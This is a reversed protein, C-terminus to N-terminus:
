DNWFVGNHVMPTFSTLGRSLRVDASRHIMEMIAGIHDDNDYTPLRFEREHSDDSRRGGTWSGRLNSLDPAPTPTQANRANLFQERLEAAMDRSLLGSSRLQVRTPAPQPQEPATERFIEVIESLPTSMPINTDFLEEVDEWIMSAEDRSIERGGKRRLQKPTLDYFPQFTSGNSTVRISVEAEEAEKFVPNFTSEVVRAYGIFNELSNSEYYKKCISILKRSSQRTLPYTVVEFTKHDLISIFHNKDKITHEVTKDKFRISRSNDSVLLGVVGHEIANMEINKLNEIQFKKM